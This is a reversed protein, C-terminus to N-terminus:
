KRSNVDMGIRALAVTQVKMRCVKEKREYEKKVMSTPIEALMLCYSDNFMVNVTNLLGNSSM